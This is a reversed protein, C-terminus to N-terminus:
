PSASFDLGTVNDDLNVFVANPDFTYRRAAVVVLYSQGATLGEVRYYGFTNTYAFRVESGTVTVLVRPIGRGTSTTVRGGIYVEGATPGTVLNVFTCTVVEGEELTIAVNRNVISVTNNNTGSGGSPDSTCLIDGLSYVSGEFSETVLVQNAAGFYALNAFTHSSPYPEMSGDDDLIFTSLGPQGTATFSFPFTSNPRADKIITITAPFVAASSSLARDQNGGQGDLDLLRMHYPSGSIAIASNGVGWDLRTSIHGGWAIVPNATSATFEIQIGTQSSGDYTGSRVYGGVSLINGNFITLDGPIQPIDDATGPIGDQGRTVWPDEPIAYTSFVTPDCDSVGSCPNAGTESYDFSTLYDIAHKAQETTDWEITVRHTGTTSIGSLRLRYAVAEGEFYHAKNENLNGNEWADGTCMIESGLPGNACQDLNASSAEPSTPGDFYAEVPPSWKNVFASAKYHGALDTMQWTSALSGYADSYVTWQGLVVSQFLQESRTEVTMTVPQSAAFGTGSFSVLGSEDVKVALNAGVISVRKVNPLTRTTFVTNQPNVGQVGAILFSITLFTNFFGYTKM